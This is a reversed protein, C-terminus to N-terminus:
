NIRGGIDVSCVWAEGEYLYLDSSELESALDYKAEEEDGDNNDLYDQWTEDSVEVTINMNADFQPM